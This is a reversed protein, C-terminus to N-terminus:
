TLFHIQFYYAVQYSTAKSFERIELFCTVFLRRFVENINNRHRTSWVKSSVIFINSRKFQSMIKWFIGTKSRSYIFPFHNIFINILFIMKFNIRGDLFLTLLQWLGLLILNNVLNLAPRLWKWSCLNLCVKWSVRLVIRLQTLSISIYAHIGM